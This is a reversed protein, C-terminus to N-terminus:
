KLISNELQRERTEDVLGALAKGTFQGSYCLVHAILGRWRSTIEVGPLVAIGREEGLLRLEDQHALTDHDTISVMRFGAGALYDFLEVPLWQGDSYITHLHLDVASDAPLHLM